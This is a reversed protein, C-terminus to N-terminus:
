DSERRKKEAIIMVFVISAAYVAAGCILFILSITGNTRINVGGNADSYGQAVGLLFSDAFIVVLIPVMRGHANKIFGSFNIVGLMFLGAAFVGIIELSFIIGFVVSTVLSFIVGIVNGCVLARKFCETSNAISRFYKSGQTMPSNYSYLTFLSSGGFLASCMGEFLAILDIADEDSVFLFYMIVPYVTMAIISWVFAILGKRAM